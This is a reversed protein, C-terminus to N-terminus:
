ANTREVARRVIEHSVGALKAVERLSRGSRVLAACLGDRHAQAATTREVLTAHAKAAQVLQRELPSM